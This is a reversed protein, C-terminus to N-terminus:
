SEPAQTLGAILKAAERRLIEAILWDHWAGGLEGTALKPLHEEILASAEAFAQSAEGTQGLQHQAMALLLLALVQVRPEEAYGQSQQSKHIWHLTKDAEASRYAALALVAFTWKNRASPVLGDDLAEALTEVPLSSDDIVGPVLLCAKIIMAERGDSVEDGAGFQHLMEQCHERYRELDGALIPLPAARLWNIRETPRLEAFKTYDAAAEKWQGLRAYLLGREALLQPDDPQFDVAQSLETIAQSLNGAEALEHAKDLLEYDPGSVTAQAERRAIDLM